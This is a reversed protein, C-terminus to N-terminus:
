WYITVKKKTEKILKPKLDAKNSIIIVVQAQKLIGNAPFIMQWRGEV